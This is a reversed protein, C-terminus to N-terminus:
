ALFWRQTQYQALEFATPLLTGQAFRRSAFRSLQPARIDATPLM